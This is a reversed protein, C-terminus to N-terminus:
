QRHGRLRPTTPAPPMPTSLAAIRTVLYPLTVPKVLYEQAGAALCRERDGTLALTTVAIIPVNLLDAHMRLRRIAELGDMVPMYLDMLIVDPRFSYALNIAEAGNQAELIRYGRSTLYASTTRLVSQNDEAILVVPHSDGDLPLWPEAPATSAAPWPLAVTFCSGVGPMSSVSIGGAHLETLRSVLVLGLGTGEHRRNLASDLQIFPKFLQAMKHEDIGIGTDNISFRIVEAQHDGSVDLSITGGDPTFKVANTLLNVLIQKLRRPDAQVTEALPDLNLTLHQRKAEALQRVLRISAVCLDAVDVTDIMLILKGSEIKSLDLLDNILTLLHQGSETVAALAYHQRENLPGYVGESTAETLSLIANLPTRLEHSMTALFEDKLQAVRELERNAASLAASREAAMQARQAFALLQELEENTQHLLIEAHRQETIDEALGVVRYPAGHHDYVPFARDRIWREAGDSRILRYTSETIPRETVHMRALMVASRDDPHITKFDPWGAAHVTAPSQEWIQAYKPSVYISERDHLDYSYFVANIHEAIQRFREESVRLKHAMHARQEAERRLEAYAAALEHVRQELTTNLQVLATEHRKRESIDRIIATLCLGNGNQWTTLAAEIPFASQDRRLGHLEITQELTEQRDLAVASRLPVVHDLPQGLAEARSYGFLREAAQNWLMINGNPDAAVIADLASTTVSRLLAEQARTQEQAQIRQIAAGIQAAVLSTLRILPENPPRVVRAFFVMMAVVGHPGMIPLVFASHLGAKRVRELQLARAPDVTSLDALWITTQDHWASGVVGVGPTFQLRSSTAAFEALLPDPEHWVFASSLRAPQDHPLWLEGYCWGTAVTLPQLAAELATPLDEAETVMRTLDLLMAIPQEVLPSIHPEPPPLPRLVPYDASDASRSSSAPDTPAADSATVPLHTERLLELFVALIDPDFHSGSLEQLRHIVQAPSMAKHYPRNNSLADWVDVVAFIRAALPIAEGALGRPYGSGDWKEHHCWPIDLAKHLYPIRALLEYAMAPHRRMVAWEAADLPGPKLLIADPIGMKGIDHLIAGRRIHELADGSIGMRKALRLTMETVRRSHGETEHDRLDLAHAWGELTADYTRALEAAAHRREDWLTRFRNLRTITRVRARLEARNFPKSIFDDAGAELGQMRLDPDDLATMLIVPALALRPDARIQRCVEFGNIDPMMVDLLILDPILTSAKRLADAGDVACAVQYGDHELLTALINRGQAQDDVILVTAHVSM